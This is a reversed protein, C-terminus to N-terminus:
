NVLPYVTYEYEWYFQRNGNWLKFGHSTNESLAVYRLGLCFRCITHNDSTSWVQWELCRSFLLRCSPEWSRRVQFSWRFVTNRWCWRSPISILSEPFPKLLWLCCLPKVRWVFCIFVVILQSHYHMIYSTCLFDVPQKHNNWTKQWMVDHKTLGNIVHIVTLVTYSLDDPYPHYPWLTVSMLEIKLFHVYWSFVLM